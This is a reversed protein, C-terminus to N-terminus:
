IDDSYDVKKAMEAVRVLNNAWSSKVTIYHRERTNDLEKTYEFNFDIEDKLLLEIFDRIQQKSLFYFELEWQCISAKGGVVPGATM